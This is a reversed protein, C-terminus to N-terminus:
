QVAVLAPRPRLALVSRPRLLGGRELRPFLMVGHPVGPLRRALRRYAARKPAPPGIADVDVVLAVGPRRPLDQEGALMPVTFRHVVLLKQPLGHRRRLGDLFGAV